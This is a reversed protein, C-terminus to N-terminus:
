ACLGNAEAQANSSPSQTPSQSPSQETSPSQSQSPSQSPSATESPAQTPTGPPADASIVGERYRAPLPADANIAKWLGAADDTWVLRNPDSPADAIPVTM